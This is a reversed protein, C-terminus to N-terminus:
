FPRRHTRRHTYRRHRIRGLQAGAGTLSTPEQIWSESAIEISQQALENHETLALVTKGHQKAKKISTYTKGTGTDDKVLQIQILNKPPDSSLFRDTAANRHKSNEELTETTEPPTDTHQLKAKAPAHQPTYGNLKALNIIAGWSVDLHLGNWRQEVEGETYKSGQRSWDDAQHWTLGAQKCATLVSLWENYNLSSPHIFDLAAPDAAGTWKTEASERIRDKPKIPTEIPTEAPIPYDTISLTKWFIHSRSTEKRANGFVPQAPSRKEPPIIPYEKSFDLLIAHYQEPTKIPEDFLFILRYRRHQPPKADSMSSVSEIIAWVKHHLTTCIEFLHRPDTFPDIGNPNKDNGYDDFEIGKIHDADACVFYTEVWNEISHTFTGDARPTFTSPQITQGLTLKEIWEEPTLEAPQWGTLSGSAEKKSDADLTHHTPIFIGNYLRFKENRM